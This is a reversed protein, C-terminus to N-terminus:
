HFVITKKNKVYFHKKNIFLISDIRTKWKSYQKEIARLKSAKEYGANLIEKAKEKKLKAILQYYSFFIVGAKNVSKEIEIKINDNKLKLFIMEFKDWLETNLPDTNLMVIIQNLIILIKNLSLDNLYDILYDKKDKLDDNTFPTFTYSATFKFVRMCHMCKLVLNNQKMVGWQETKDTTLMSIYSENTNSKKILEVKYSQCYPCIRKIKFDSLLFNETIINDYDVSEHYNLKDKFQNQLKNTHKNM